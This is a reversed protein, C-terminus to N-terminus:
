KTQTPPPYKKLLDDSSVSGKRSSSGGGNTMRAPLGGRGGLAPVDVAKNIMDDITSLQKRAYKSDPTNYGSMLGLTIAMASDTAQLGLVGRMRGLTEAMRAESIMLDKGKQSLNSTSVQNVVNNFWTHEDGATPAGAGKMIKAFLLRDTANDFAGLSDGMQKIAPAAESQLQQVAVIKDQSLGGVPMYQNPNDMYQFGTLSVTEGTSKDYYNRLQYLRGKGMSLGRKEMLEERRDQLMKLNAAAEKDNPDHTLRAIWEAENNKVAVPKAAQAMQGAAKLKEQYGKVDGNKLAEAAEGLMKNVQNQTDEKADAGIQAAKVRADAPAMSKLVGGLQDNPVMMQAGSPMTVMTSNKMRETQVRKQESEAQRAAIEAQNKAAEQQLGYQHLSQQYPAQMAAAAGRMASGPGHGEQAFGQSLSTLFNTLFNNFHDLKTPALQGPAVNRNPHVLDMILGPLGGITPKPPQGYREAGQEQTLGGQIMPSSSPGSTSMSAIAKQIAPPLGSKSDEGQAQPINPNPPAMQPQSAPSSPPPAMGAMLAQIIAPDTQQGPIAGIAGDNGSPAPPGYEENTAM